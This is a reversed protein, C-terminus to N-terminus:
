PRGLGGASLLFPELLSLEGDESELDVLSELDDVSEDLEVDLDPLSLEDEDSEFDEPSELLLLM